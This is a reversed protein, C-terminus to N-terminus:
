DVLSVDEVELKALDYTYTVTIGFKRCMLDVEKDTDIYLDDGRLGQWMALYFLSGFKKIKVAKKLGGKWPLEVLVGDIASSALNPDEKAKARGREWSMILGRDDGKWSEEWSTYERIPLNISRTVIMKYIGLFHNM